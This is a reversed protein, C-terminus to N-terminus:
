LRGKLSGLWRKPRASRQERGLALREIGRQHRLHGRTVFDRETFEVIAM